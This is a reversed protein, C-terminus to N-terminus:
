AVVRNMLGCVCVCERERARQPAVVYTPACDVAEHGLRECYECQLPCDASFHLGVQKCNGCTINFPPPRSMHANGSLPTFHSLPNPQSSPSASSSRHTRLFLNRTLKGLRSPSPTSPASITAFALTKNRRPLQMQSSTSPSPPQPFPAAM